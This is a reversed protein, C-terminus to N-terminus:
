QHIKWCSKWLNMECLNPRSVLNLTCAKPDSCMDRSKKTSKYIHTSCKNIFLQLISDMADNSVAEGTQFSQFMQVTVAHDDSQWFQFTDPKLQNNTEIRVAISTPGM